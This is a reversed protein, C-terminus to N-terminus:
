SDPPLPLKPAQAPTILPTAIKSQGSSSGRGPLTAAPGLPELLSNLAALLAPHDIGRFVPPLNRFKTVASTYVNIAGRANGRNLHELAVACQILGQFFRKDRGEALNWAEEWTEHAEFWAGANFLHLGQLFARTIREENTRPPEDTSPAM